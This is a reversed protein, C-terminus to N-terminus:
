KIDPLTPISTKKKITGNKLLFDTTTEGIARYSFKGGDSILEQKAEEVSSPLYEQSLANKYEELSYRTSANKDLYALSDKSNKDIDAYVFAVSDFWMRVLNEVDTRRNEYVSKRVIFGTIDAFGLDEMTLVAHGGRRQVETLQTLGASAIDISGREAAFFGQDLPTDIVRLQSTPIKVKQALHYLMMDYISNRQAGIRNSLFRSVKESDNLDQRRLPALDKNFTVFAGGKFVYLPYIFLVPDNSGANINEAKTLYEIYSGFGVDAARGASAVAPIIEEWGMTILRLDTGYKTDLGLPKYNVLMALDQYPSIAVRLPDQGDRSGTYTVYAVIAVALLLTAVAYKRYKKMSM